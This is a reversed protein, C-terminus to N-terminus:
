RPIEKNHPANPCEWFAGKGRCDSCDEWDVGDYWLPDEEMLQDGDFGGEGGCTDCEVRELEAGCIPCYPGDAVPGGATIADLHSLPMPEAGLDSDGVFLAPAEIPLLPFAESADM